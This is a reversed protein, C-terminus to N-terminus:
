WADFRREGRLWEVRGNPDVQKGIPMAFMLKRSSGSKPSRIYNILAELRATSFTRVGLTLTRDPDFQSFRVGLMHKESTGGIASM